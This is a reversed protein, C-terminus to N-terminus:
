LMSYTSIALVRNLLLLHLNLAVKPDFLIQSYKNKADSPRTFKQYLPFDLARNLGNIKKSVSSGRFNFKVATSTCSETKYKGTNYHEKTSTPIRSYEPRQRQPPSPQPQPRTVQQQDLMLDRLSTSVM